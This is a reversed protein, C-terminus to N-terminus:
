SNGGRALGWFEFIVKLAALSSINGNDFPPSVEVMDLGVFKAANGVV